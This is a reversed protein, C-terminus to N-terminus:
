LPSGWIESRMTDPALEMLASYRNNTQPCRGSVDSSTGAATKQTNCVALTRFVGDSTDAHRSSPPNPPPMREEREKAASLFPTCAYRLSRTLRKHAAANSRLHEDECERCKREKKIRDDRGALRSGTRGQALCRM